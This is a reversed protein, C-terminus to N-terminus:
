HHDAPRRRERAKRVMELPVGAETLQACAAAVRLAAQAEREAIKRDAEALRQELIARNAKEAELGGRIVGAAYIMAESMMVKGMTDLAAYEELLAHISERATM